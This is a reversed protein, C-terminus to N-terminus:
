RGGIQHHMRTFATGTSLMHPSLTHQHTCATPGMYSYQFLSALGVLVVVTVPNYRTIGFAFLPAPVVLCLAPILASSRRNGRRAFRDALWGAIVIRLTAPLSAVLGAVLGAEVLTYGFRRILYAALFANLSLSVMNAITAGFLM